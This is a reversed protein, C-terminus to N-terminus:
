SDSVTNVVVVILAGTQFTGGAKINVIEIVRFTFWYGFSDGVTNNVFIRSLTSFTSWSM